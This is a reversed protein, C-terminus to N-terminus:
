TRSGGRQVAATMGMIHYHDLGIVAFKISYKPKADAHMGPDAMEHFVHRERTHLGFAAEPLVSM